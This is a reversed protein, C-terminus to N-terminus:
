LSGVRVLKMNNTQGPKGPSGAVVALIDGRAIARRRLLETEAAALTVEPDHELPLVLPVVGWYLAARNAVREDHCFAYVPRAPRYKSILEATSGSRTFAVIARVKLMQAAHVVSECVTEAIDLTRGRRRIDTEMHTQDAAEAIRAMMQAAEIPHRGSATEGSLMVADTGDLIANAVDSAEARTPRLNVTMSELMQTATIVPRRTQSARQIIKKQILPVREPPMEVGLDGRAVMVGDCLELIEDLNDIAEPKELKALVPIAARHKKLLRKLKAVDSARRVFSMAVYDVGLSVGVALDAEDKATLAEIRLPIGPLNVGKHEKLVGGEVVETEVERGKKGIVRLEILGDDLLIRNGKRVDRALHPYSISVRRSSGAVEEATLWFKQGQRLHVARGDPLRGTRIKPGCLDQLIAVPRGLEHAAQRVWGVFRTHTEPTGHSFNLRAVDMGARILERIKELSAVAPGLTCIMKTRRM